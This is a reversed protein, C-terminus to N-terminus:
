LLGRNSVDFDFIADITDNPRPVCPLIHLPDADMTGRAQTGAHM